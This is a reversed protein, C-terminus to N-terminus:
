RRYSRAPHADPDLRSGQGSSTGVPGELVQTLLPLKRMKSHAARPRYIVRETSIVTIGLDPAPPAPGRLQWGRGDVKRKMYIEM